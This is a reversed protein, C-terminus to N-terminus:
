TRRIVKLYLIVLFLIIILFFIGLFLLRLNFSRKKNNDDSNLVSKVVEIFNTFEDDTSSMFVGFIAAYLKDM